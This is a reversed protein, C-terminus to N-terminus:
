CVTKWFVSLKMTLDSYKSGITLSFREYADAVVKSNFTKLKGKNKVERLRGSSLYFLSIHIIHHPLV